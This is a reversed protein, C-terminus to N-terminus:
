ILIWGVLKLIGYLIFIFSIIPFPILIWNEHLDLKEDKLKLNTITTFIISYAISIIALVKFEINSNLFIFLWIIINFVLLSTMIQLIKKPGFFVASTKLGAKTDFEFDTLVTPIYFVAALTFSGLVIRLDFFVKNLSLGAILIGVAAFANCLIDGIPRTKLRLPPMSYIYGIFNVLSILVFFLTNIFWAFILSLVLFFINLLYAKELSIEGTVIPQRALNMDKSRGDHLKDVNIDAIANLIFSFSMWSIFALFAFLIHFPESKQTIGLGLGVSFPLLFTIWAIPRLLRIYKLIM